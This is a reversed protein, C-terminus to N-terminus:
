WETKDGCRYFDRKKFWGLSIFHNTLMEVTNMFKQDIKSKDYWRARGIHYGRFSKVLRIVSTGDEVSTIKFTIEYYPLLNVFFNVEKSGQHAKGEESSFWHISFGNQSLVQQLISKADRESCHVFIDSYPPGLRADKKRYKMIIAIIILGPILVGVIIFVLVCLSDGSYEISYRFTVSDDMDDQPPTAMGENTNDVVLYYRGGEVTVEVVTATVDLQSGEPIFEWGPENNRYRHYDNKHFLLVDIAPGDLVNITYSITIERSDSGHIKYSWFDNEDLTATGRYQASAFFPLSYLIMLSFAFTTIGIRKALIGRRTPRRDM